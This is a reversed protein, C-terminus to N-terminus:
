AVTSKKGIRELEDPVTYDGYQVHQEIVQM